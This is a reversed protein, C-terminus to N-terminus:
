SGLRVSTSFSAAEYFSCHALSPVRRTMVLPDLRWFLHLRLVSGVSPSVFSLRAWNLWVSSVTFVFGCVDLVGVRGAGDAIWDRGGAATSM